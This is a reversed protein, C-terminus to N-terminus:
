NAFDMTNKYLENKCIYNGNIEKCDELNNKLNYLEKDRKITLFKDPVDILVLGNTVIKPIAIIEFLDFEEKTVIPIQLLVIIEQNKVYAKIEIEKIINAYNEITPEFLLSNDLHLQNLEDLLQLPEIVRPHIVGNQIFLLSDLIQEIEIELQMIKFNIKNIIENFYSHISNTEQIQKGEKNMLNISSIIENIKNGTVNQIAGVDIVQKSLKTMIKVNEQMGNKIRIENSKITNVTEAYYKADENDMTGYLLKFGSDIINVLGRRFRTERGMINYIVHVRHELKILNNKVIEQYKECNSIHNVCEDNITKVIQRINEIYDNLNRM